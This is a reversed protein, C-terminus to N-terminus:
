SKQEQYNLVNSKITYVLLNIKEDDTISHSDLFEEFEKVDSVLPNEDIFLEYYKKNLEKEHCVRELEQIELTLESKNRKFYNILELIYLNAERYQPLMQVSEDSSELLYCSAKYEDKNSNLKDLNELILEQDAYIGVLNVDGNVYALFRSVSELKEKKQNLEMQKDDLDVILPELSDTLKKVYENMTDVM